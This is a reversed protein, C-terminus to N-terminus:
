FFCDTLVYGKPFGDKLEKYLPHNDELPFTDIQERLSRNTKHIRVQEAAYLLNNRIIAGSWADLTVNETASMKIVFRQFHTQSFLRLFNKM